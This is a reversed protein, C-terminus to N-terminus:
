VVEVLSVMGTSLFAESECTMSCTGAEREFGCCAGLCEGLASGCAFLGCHLLNGMDRIDTGVGGTCRACFGNRLTDKGMCTTATARGSGTIDASVGSGFTSVFAIPASLAGGALDARGEVAAVGLVAAEGTGDLTASTSTAADGTMGAHGGLGQRGSISERMKGASGAGGGGSPPPCVYLLSWEEPGDEGVPGLGLQGFSALVLM